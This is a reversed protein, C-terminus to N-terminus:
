FGRFRLEAKTDKPRMVANHGGESSYGSNAFSREQADKPSLPKPHAVMWFVGAVGALMVIVILAGITAILVKSPGHRQADARADQEPQPIQM